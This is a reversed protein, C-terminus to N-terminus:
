AQGPFMLLKINVSALHMAIMVVGYAAQTTKITGITLCRPCRRSDENNLERNCRDCLHGCKECLEILVKDAQKAFLSNLMNAASHAAITNYDMYGLKIAGNAEGKSYQRTGKDTSGNIPGCAKQKDVATHKLIRVHAIGTMMKFRKEIKIEEGTEPDIVTRTYKYTEMGWPAYGMAVLEDNMEIIRERTVTFATADVQKGTAMAYTGMLLELIVAPTARSSLSMPSFILGPVVGKNRGEIIVPLEERPKIDGVVGKQAQRLGLKDGVQLTKNFVITIRYIKMSSNSVDMIKQVVGEKGVKIFQSKNVIQVQQIPKGGEGSNSLQVSVIESRYKAFFCDKAKLRSGLNPLGTSKNIHQYAADNYYQSGEAIGATEGEEIPIELTAIRQSQVKKALHEGALFADELNEEAMCIAMVTNVGNNLFSSNLENVNTTVASHESGHLVKASTETLVKANTSAQTLASKCMASEHICRNGPMHNVAPSCATVLGYMAVPNIECYTPIQKLLPKIQRKPIVVNDDLKKAEIAEKRIAEIRSWEEFLQPFRENYAYLERLKKFSECVVNFEMEVAFVMELVGDAIMDEMTRERIYANLNSPNMLDMGTDDTFEKMGRISFLPRYVRGGDCLINYSFIHLKDDDSYTEEVIAVDMTKYDRKLRNRVKIFTDYDIRAHPVSNIKILKKEADGSFRKFAKLEKPDKPFIIDNVIDLIDKVKKSVSFAVTCAMHTKLGVMGGSPTEFPCVYGTHSEHVARIAITQSHASRPISYTTLQSFMSHQNTLDANEFVDMEGKSVSAKPKWDNGNINVIETMTGDAQQKKKKATLIKCNDRTLDKKWIEAATMFVKNGMDDRDTQPIVGQETAINNFLMQMLLLAKSYFAEAKKKPSEDNRVSISPFISNIVMEPYKDISKLNQNLSEYMMRREKNKYLDNLADSWLAYKDKEGQGAKAKPPEIPKDTDLRHDYLFFHKLKYGSVIGIIDKMFDNYSGLGEWVVQGPTNANLKDMLLYIQKFIQNPHFIKTKKFCTFTICYEGARGNRSTDSEKYLVTQVSNNQEDQTKLETRFYPGKMEAITSITHHAIKEHALFYKASGGINFYGQYNVANEGNQHLELPTKGHTKCWKSGIMLPVSILPKSTSKDTQELFVLKQYNSKDKLFEYPWRNSVAPYEKTNALKNKESYNIGITVPAESGEDKRKKQFAVRIGEIAENYTRVLSSNIAFKSIYELFFLDLETFSEQEVINQRLPNRSTMYGKLERRSKMQQNFYTEDRIIPDRFFEPPDPAKTQKVLNTRLM